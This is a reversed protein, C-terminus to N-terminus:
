CENFEVNHIEPVYAFDNKAEENGKARKLEALERDYTKKSSENALVRVKFDSLASVLRAYDALGVADLGYIPANRTQLIFELRQINVSKKLTEATQAPSVQFLEYYDVNGTRVQKKYAEILHGVEEIVEQTIIFDVRKNKM